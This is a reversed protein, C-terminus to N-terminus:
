ATDRNVPKRRICILSPLGIGFSLARMEKGQEEEDVEINYKRTEEQM